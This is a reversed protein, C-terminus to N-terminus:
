DASASRIIEGRIRAGVVSDAIRELLEQKSYGQNVYVGQAKAFATIDKKLQLLSQNALLNKAEELTGCNHLANEIQKWNSEGTEKAFSHDINLHSAVKKYIVKKTDNSKINVNHHCCFLALEKKTYKKLIKEVNSDKKIRDMIQDYDATYDFKAEFRIFAKKEVLEQFQKNTLGELFEMTIRLMKETEKKGM